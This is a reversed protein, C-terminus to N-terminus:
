TGCNLVCGGAPGADRTTVGRGADGRGGQGRIGSREPMRGHTGGAPNSGAAEAKPPGRAEAASRPCPAPPSVRVGSCLADDLTFTGEGGSRLEPDLDLDGIAVDDVADADNSPDAADVMFAPSEGGNTWRAALARVHGPGPDLV